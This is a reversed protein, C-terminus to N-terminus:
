YVYLFESSNFLVLCLDALARTIEDVQWPRLDDEYKELTKLEYTKRVLEGTKEIVDEIEVSTAVPRKELEHARHLEAMEALHRVSRTREERGPSRGYVALFAREVLQEM